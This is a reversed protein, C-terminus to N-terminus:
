GDAKRLITQGKTGRVTVNPRLHLSDRMSYTGPGIEVTGGGLGAIYDVAAQLARNDAGVIEANSQGVTVRPLEKMASHMRRPLQCEDPPASFGPEAASAFRVGAILSLTFGFIAFHRISHRM